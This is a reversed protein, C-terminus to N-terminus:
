HKTLKLLHLLTAFDRCLFCCLLRVSQLADELCSELLVISSLLKNCYIFASAVLTSTSALIALTRDTARNPYLVRYFLLFAPTKQWCYCYVAVERVVDKLARNSSRKYYLEQLFIYQQATCRSAIYQKYVVSRDM